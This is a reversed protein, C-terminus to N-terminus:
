VFLADCAEEAGHGERLIAVMERRSLEVLGDQRRIEGYYKRRASVLDADSYGRWWDRFAAEIEAKPTAAFHVVRM